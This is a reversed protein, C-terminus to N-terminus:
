LRIPDGDCIYGMMSQFTTIHHMVICAEKYESGGTFPRLSCVRGECNFHLLMHEMNGGLSVLGLSLNLTKTPFQGRLVKPKTCAGFKFEWLFASTLM